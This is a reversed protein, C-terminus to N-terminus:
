PTIIVCNFTDEEYEFTEMNIFEIELNIKQSTEPLTYEFTSFLGGVNSATIFGVPEGGAPIMKDGNYVGIVDGKQMHYEGGEDIVERTGTGDNWVILKPEDFELTFAWDKGSLTQDDDTGEAGESILTVNFEYDIGDITMTFKFEFENVFEKEFEFVKYYSTGYSRFEDSKISSNIELNSEEESMCVTLLDGEKLIVTQGNELVTGKKSIDNWITLKPEKTDVSLAWEGVSQPGSVEEIATEEEEVESEIFTEVKEAETEVETEVLTVDSVDSEENACATIGLCMVLSTIALYLKKNKKM